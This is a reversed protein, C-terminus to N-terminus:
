KNSLNIYSNINFDIQNQLKIQILQYNIITYKNENQLKLANSTYLSDPNDSHNFQTTSLFYENKSNVSLNQDKSDLKFDSKCYSSYDTYEANKSYESYEYCQSNFKNIFLIKENEYLIIENEHYNFNDTNDDDNNNNIQNQFKSKYFNEEDELNYESINDVNQEESMKSNSTFRTSPENSSLINSSLNSHNDSYLFSEDNTNEEDGYIISVNDEAEFKACTQLKSVINFDQFHNVATNIM